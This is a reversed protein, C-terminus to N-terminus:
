YQHQLVEHMKSSTIDTLMSVTHTWAGQADQIPNSIIKAGIASVAKASWLKKGSWPYEPVRRPLKCLQTTSTTGAASPGGGWCKKTRGALCHLRPEVHLIRSDKDSIILAADSTDAILTLRAIHEQQAREKVYRDTIDTAIKLIRQVQGQANFVPSYTADLWCSSGDVRVREM